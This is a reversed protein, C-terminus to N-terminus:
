ALCIFTMESANWERMEWIFHMPVDQRNYRDQTEGHKESELRACGLNLVM